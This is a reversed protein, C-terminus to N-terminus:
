DDSGERWGLLKLPPLKYNPSDRPCRIVWILGKLPIMLVALATIIQAPESM